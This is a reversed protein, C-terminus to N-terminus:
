GTKNNFERNEIVLFYEQDYTRDRLFGITVEVGKGIISFGTKLKKAAHIVHFCNEYILKNKFHNIMECQKEQELAKVMLSDSLARIAQDKGGM